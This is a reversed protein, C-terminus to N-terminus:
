KKVEEHLEDVPVRLVERRGFDVTAIQRDTARSWGLARVVGPRGQWRVASGVAIM